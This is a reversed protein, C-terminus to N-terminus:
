SVVNALPENALFRQVQDHVLRLGREQWGTTGGGIHPTLLLNPAAWLPHEPPLPEPDTVDLYASLRRSTLEALLADTDVIAGRAVNVVRAGDPLAALFAADVLQHTEPAYPVAIVVVDHDPLLGPVESLAHVGDRATRGVLTVSADLATMVTAVRSGIDGVGIVMVRKGALADTRANGWVGDRQQDILRPLDRVLGILGGVALEATSAGHIGRGNCLVVGPPLLPQWSEFGASLLQVVQLNPLLSLADPAPPSQMYPPVLFESREIGSPADGHWNWILIEVDLDQLRDRAATSPVCVTRM